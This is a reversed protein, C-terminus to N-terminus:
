MWSVILHCSVKSTRSIDPQNSKPVIAVTVSYQSMPFRPFSSSCRAHKICVRWSKTARHPQAELDCVPTRHLSNRLFGCRGRSLACKSIGPRTAQRLPRLYVLAQKHSCLRSTWWRRRGGWGPRRRAPRTATTLVTLSTGGDAAIHLSSTTAGTM